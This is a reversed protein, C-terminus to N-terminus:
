ETGYGHTATKEIRNSLALPRGCKELAAGDAWGLDVIESTPKSKAMTRIELAVNHWSNPDAEEKGVAAQETGTDIIAGANIVSGVDIVAGRAHDAGRLTKDILQDTGPFYRVNLKCGPAISWMYMGDLIDIKEGPKYGAINSATVRDEGIPRKTMQAAAATYAHTQSTSPAKSSDGSFAAVVALFVVARAGASLIIYDKFDDLFERFM